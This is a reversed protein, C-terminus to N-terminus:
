PPKECCAYYDMLVFPFSFAGLMSAEKLKPWLCSNQFSDFVIASTNSEEGLWALVRTANQYILSTQSVQSNREHINAQNM